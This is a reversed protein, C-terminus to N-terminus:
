YKGGLKNHDWSYTQQARVRVISRKAAQKRQVDNPIAPTSNGTRKADIAANVQLVLDPDGDIVEGEGEIVLGRLEQYEVGSELMCSIKPNRRLNLVKQAKGFTTFHIDGDIVAYWMAVLHPWGKAGISAVELTWSTALFEEREAPTMEIQNRRKPM